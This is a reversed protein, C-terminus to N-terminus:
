KKEMLKKSKELSNKLAAMDKAIEPTEKMRPSQTSTQPKQSDPLKKDLTKETGSITKEVSKEITKDVKKMDERIVKQVNPIKKALVDKSEKFEKDTAMILENEYRKVFNKKLLLIAGIVLVFTGLLVFIIWSWDGQKKLGNFVNSLANNLKSNEPPSASTVKATLNNKITTNVEPKKIEPIPSEKQRFRSTSIVYLGSDYSSAEFYAYTADESLYKTSLMDWSDNLPIYELVVVDEKSINSENLWKKEVSFYIDANISANSPVTTRNFL